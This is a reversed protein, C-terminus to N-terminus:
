IQPRGEICDVSLRTLEVVFVKTSLGKPPAGIYRRIGGLIIHEVMFTICDMEARSLSPRRQQLYIRTAGRILNDFSVPHTALQLEPVEQPLRLLILAQEKHFKYLTQIIRQMAVNLPKDLTELMMVKMRAVLRASVEEFLAMLIAERNPFYQYLSGISVGAREAIHATGLDAFGMEEILLLTAQKISDVTSRSRRQSPVKRKSFKDVVLTDSSMRVRAIRISHSGSENYLKFSGSSFM